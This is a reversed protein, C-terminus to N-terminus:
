GTDRLPTIPWTRAACNLLDRLRSEDIQGELGGGARVTARGCACAARLADADGWGRLFGYILGADFADGAGVTDVV